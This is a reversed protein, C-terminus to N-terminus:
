GSVVQCQALDRGRGLAARADLVLGKLYKTSSFEQLIVAKIEQITVWYATNVHKTRLDSPFTM